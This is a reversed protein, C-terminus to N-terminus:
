HGTEFYALRPRAIPASARAFTRITSLRAGGVLALPVVYVGLLTTLHIVLLQEAAPGILAAESPSRERL